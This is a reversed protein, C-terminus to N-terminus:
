TKQIEKGCRYLDDIIKYFYLQTGIIYLPNHDSIM